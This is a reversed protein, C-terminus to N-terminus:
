CVYHWQAHVVHQQGDQIITLIFGQLSECDNPDLPPTPTYDNSALECFGYDSLVCACNDPIDLIDPLTPAVSPAGAQPVPAPAVSSYSSSLAPLASSVTFGLCLLVTGLSCGLNFIASM